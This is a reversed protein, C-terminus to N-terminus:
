LGELAERARARAAEPLASDGALELTRELAARAEETRELALYTMGLHYQVTPEEPLAEAAASLYELATEHDGRLHAIWGYTDQFAPVETGSLRRTIAYARDIAEADDARTMLLNALNNAVVLNGGDDAYIGEYLAIAGAVDGTREAQEALLLRPLVAEPAAARTEELLALAEDDRDQQILIGYLVRLPPAAGPYAALIERYIAEATEAEGEVLFLGARLFRLLPDDPYAELQRDLLAKAEEINGETIQAQILAALSEADGRGEAAMQEVLAQMDGTRNERLLVEAELAEAARRAGETDLARLQAIGRRAEEVRDERLYLGTLAALLEPDSPAQRLADVLVAEAPGPRGQSVLFDAYVLSERPAKGALDVSTAYREGALEWNGARAHADGMLGVVEADRPDTAQAQRLLRVAEDTQDGDILRRAKIKSAEVHGSDQSLM